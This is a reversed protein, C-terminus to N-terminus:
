TPSPWGPRTPGEDLLQEVLLVVGRDPLSRRVTRLFLSAACHFSPPTGIALKQPVLPGRIPKDGAIEVLECHFAMDTRFRKAYGRCRSRAVDVIGVALDFRIPGRQFRISIAFGSGGTLSLARVASRSASRSLARSDHSAAALRSRLSKYLM